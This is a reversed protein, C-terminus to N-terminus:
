GGFIALLIAGAIVGGGVTVIWPNLWWPASSPAATVPTARDDVEREPIRNKAEDAVPREAADEAARTGAQEAKRILRAVFEHLQAYVGEVVTRNPGSVDLTTPRGLWEKMRVSVKVPATPDGAVHAFVAFSAGTFESSEHEQTERVFEEFGVGDLSSPPERFGAQGFFMLESDPVASQVLRQAEAAAAHLDELAIWRDWTDDKEFTRPVVLFALPRGPHRQGRRAAVFRVAEIASLDERARCQNSVHVVEEPWGLAYAKCDPCLYITLSEM